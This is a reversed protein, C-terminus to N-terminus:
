TTYLEIAVGDIRENSFKGSATIPKPFKPVTELAFTGLDGAIGLSLTTEANLAAQILAVLADFVAKTIYEIEIRILQSKKDVLFVYANGEADFENRGTKTLKLADLGIVNTRCRVGGVLGTKTFYITELNVLNYRAM